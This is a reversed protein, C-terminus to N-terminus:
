SSGKKFLDPRLKKTVFRSKNERWAKIKQHDGSLLIQPVPLNKFKRPKTYHPYELYTSFSEKNAVGKKFVGKIHRVVADTILMAPIEGGTTIFDGISIEEDVFKKVREDVGEYHGCIIILNSVKALEKAKKSNFQKGHPGLLIVRQRKGTAKIEQIAKHLVDVRIIMGTEGGYPKDDVMKHKGIGFGRLNIFNIKVLGKNKARNVISYDFPGKFMEPFLTLININM